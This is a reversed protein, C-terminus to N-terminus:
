SNQLSGINFSTEHHDLASGKLDEGADKYGLSQLLPQDSNFQHLSKMYGEREKILYM